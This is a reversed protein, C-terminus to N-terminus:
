NIKLTNCQPFFIVYEVPLPEVFTGGLELAEANLWAVYKRSLAEQPFTDFIDGFDYQTDYEKWMQGQNPLRAKGTWVKAFTAAQYRGHTWPRMLTYAITPDRIYHGTWHLNEKQELNVDPLFTNPLYGTALIITGNMLHIKGSQIGVNHTHQEEFFLIEPIVEVKPLSKLLKKTNQHHRNEQQLVRLSAYIKEAFRGLGWCDRSCISFWRCHSCCYISAQGSYPEPHRYSQVHCMSYDGNQVAKSWHGIGEINPIYPKAYLNTADVVADFNETWFHEKIRKSEPLWELRRLTLTWSATSNGKEVKEVRTSYSAIRTSSASIPEDNSNIGHLSAYASVHRQVDHVSLRWPADAPYKIGPLETTVSPSNTHLDYWAPSPNWHERWLHDLLVGDEGDKYYRTAPFVEPLLCIKNSEIGPYTERVPLSETYFWSGGPKPAREFLRVRINEDLLHAAAQLGSPGAGIVAVRAIPQSFITWKSTNDDSSHYVFQHSTVTALSIALLLYKLM